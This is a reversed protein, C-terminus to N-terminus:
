SNGGANREAKEVILYPGEKAIVVIEEGKKIVDRARALWYEGRVMVFGERGPELDDIAKGKEGEMSGIYPKARRAKVIKYTSIGVATALVASVGAAGYFLSKIYDHSLAWGAGGIPLLAMGMTMMIIGTVGLVGFGPTVFLEVALFTIGLILMLLATLNVNYGMGLFGLLVLLIGAPVSIYHGTIIGFLLILMGLSMAFSSFTPDSLVHLIKERPSGKYFIIKGGTIITVEKGGSIAVENTGPKEKFIAGILVKTGNVKLLLDNLNNALVDVVHYKYAEEPGLNLNETIFLRAATTNRGRFKAVEEVLSIMHNLIKSENVYKVAGTTPDYLIPQMSGITTLPAM